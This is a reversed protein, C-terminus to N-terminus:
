YVPAAEAIVTDHEFLTKADAVRVTSIFGREFEGWAVGKLAPLEERWRAGHHALLGEARWAMEQRRRDWAPLRALECQARILEAREVDGNEELWDSFVLRPADDERDALISSLFFSAKRMPFRM